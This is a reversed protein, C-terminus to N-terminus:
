NKPAIPPSDQLKEVGSQVDQYVDHLHNLLDQPPVEHIQVERMLFALIQLPGNHMDTVAQAMLQQHNQLQQELLRSRRWLQRYLWVIPLVYTVVTVAIEAPLKLPIFRDECNVTSNM